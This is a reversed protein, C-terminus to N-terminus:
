VPLAACAARCHGPLRCVFGGSRLVGLTSVHLERATFCAGRQLRQQCLGPSADVAVGRPEVQGDKRAARGGLRQSM